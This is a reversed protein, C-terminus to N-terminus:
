DILNFERLGYTYWQGQQSWSSQQPCQMVDHRKELPDFTIDILFNKTKTM